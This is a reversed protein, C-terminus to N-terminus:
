ETEDNACEYVLLKIKKISTEKESTKTGIMRITLGHKELMKSLVQMFVGKGKEEAGNISTTEIGCSPSRDVGVLGLVEFGYKQYEQIQIVTEEAKHNLIQINGKETMLKRIRTNEDLLPRKAGQKDRRDLGLCLLEPCPLQIMGIGNAM